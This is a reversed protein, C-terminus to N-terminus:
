LVAEAGPMTRLVRQHAAQAQRALGPDAREGLRVAASVAAAYWGLADQYGLLREAHDGALLAYRLLESDYSRGAHRLHAAIEAARTPDGPYLSILAHAAQRHLLRLHPSGLLALTIARVSQHAIELREHEGEVLFHRSLLLQAHSLAPEGGLQEVLDLSVPRGLIAIQELLLRAAEPLRDLRAGILDRIAASSALEPLALGAAAAPPLQDLSRLGHAELFTQLAVQLLLPNGASQAALQHSLEEAHPPAALLEEVAAPALPGLILPRLRMERGLERLLAHLAPSEALEEARYALVLLVPRGAARRALLAASALQAPDAWQADDICVVLPAIRSLALGLEVAGEILRARADEPPLQPLVILGPMRDRISPILEALQALATGPLRRLLPEPAIRLLPRLAEALAALPLGRQALTCRVVIPQMGRREAEDAVEALLRSKGIGAEGVLTVVGGARRELAAIWGRLQALEGERGVLPPAAAALASSRHRARAPARAGDQAPALGFPADLEGRLIGAHLAQTQPSPSAGLEHDLRLRFREYSHLAAAIDGALGEARMLIRCIPEHLPDIELGRQAYRIARPLSGSALLRQALEEIAALARSRAQERQGLAWPADPEDELLDGRYLLAAQELAADSHPPEGAGLLVELDVWADAPRAWAYGGPRTAIYRESARPAGPDLTRRISSIASRLTTAAHDPEASPWLWEILRSAPVTGGGAILLATFLRREQRSRWAREPLPQGDREVRLPGLLSIRLTM